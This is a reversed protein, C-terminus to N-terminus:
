YNGECNGSERRRFINCVNCEFVFGAGDYFHKLSEECVVEARSPIVFSAIGRVLETGLSKGRMDQRVAVQSILADGNLDHQVVAAASDGIIFCRSIGHRVRHSMDLYWPEFEIDFGERLIDYVRSLESTEEYRAAAVGGQYRMLCATHLEADLFRSLMDGTEESCFVSVFGNMNLLYALEEPDASEGCIVFAGDLAAMFVEGQRFFRCFDYDTGYALLLARIKNAFIGETPLPSLEQPSIVREIM